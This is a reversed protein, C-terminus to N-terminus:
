TQSEREQIINFLCISLSLTSNTVILSYILTTNTQKNKTSQYNPLLLSLHYSFFLTFNLFSFSPLTLFLKKKTTCFLNIADVTPNPWHRLYPSYLVFVFVFLLCLCLYIIAFVLSLLFFCIMYYLFNDCIVFKLFYCHNM